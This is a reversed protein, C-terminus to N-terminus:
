VKGKWCSEPETEDGREARERVEVFADGHVARTEVGRAVLVGRREGSGAVCADIREVREAGAAVSGGRM